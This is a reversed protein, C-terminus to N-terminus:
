NTRFSEKGSERITLEIFPEVHNVEHVKVVHGKSTNGSLYARGRRWIYSYSPLSSHHCVSISMVANWSKSHSLLSAQKVKMTQFSVSYTRDLKDLLM